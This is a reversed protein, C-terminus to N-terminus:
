VWTNKCCAPPGAPSLALGAGGAAGKGRTSPAPCARQGCRLTEPLDVIGARGWVGACGFGREGCGARCSITQAIGNCYNEKKTAPAAAWPKTQSSRASSGMPVTGVRSGLDCESVGPALVWRMAGWEHGPSAGGARNKGSSLEWLPKLCTLACSLPEGPFCLARLCLCWPVGLGPAM